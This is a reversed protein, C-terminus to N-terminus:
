REKYLWERSWKNPSCLLERGKSQCINSIDVSSSLSINFLTPVDRDRQRTEQTIFFVYYQTISKKLYSHFYKCKMVSYPYEKDTFEYFVDCKEHSPDANSSLIFNGLINWEFGQQDTWSGCLVKNKLTCETASVPAATKDKAMAFSPLFFSLCLMILVFSIRM